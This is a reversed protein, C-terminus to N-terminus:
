DCDRDYEEFSKAIDAALQEKSGASKKAYVSLGANEAAAKRMALQEDLWRSLHDAADNTALVYTYKRGTEVCETGGGTLNGKDDYDAFPKGFHALLEELLGPMQALFSRWEATTWDLWPEKTM